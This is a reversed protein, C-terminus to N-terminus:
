LNEDIEKEKEKEIQQLGRLIGNQYALGVILIEEGSLKRGVFSGIFTITENISYTKKM